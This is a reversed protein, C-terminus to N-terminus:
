SSMARAKSLGMLSIFSHLHKRECHHLQELREATPPLTQIQTLRRVPSAGDGEGGRRVRLGAAAFSVSGLRDAAAGQLHCSLSSNQDLTWGSDMWKDLM